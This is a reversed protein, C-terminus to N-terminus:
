RNNFRGRKKGKKGSALLSGLFSILPYALFIFQFASGSGGDVSISVCFSILALAGGTALACVSPLVKCFKASFVGSLLLTISVSAYGIPACLSDPDNTSMAAAAGIFLLASLVCVSLALSKLGSWLISEADSREKAKSFKAGAKKKM